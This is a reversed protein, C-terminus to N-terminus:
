ITETDERGPSVIIEAATERSHGRAVIMHISPMAFLTFMTDTAMCIRPVRSRELVTSICPPM